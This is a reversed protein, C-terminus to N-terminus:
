DQKDVQVFDLEVPTERGFISVLIKLKMKEPRVEEVIGDFNTFPGEKIKVVEGKEFSVEVVPAEKVKEVVETSRFRMVEAESVPRPTKTSGVFDSIKPTDKVIHRTSDTLNMQVLIYGPYSTKEVMKKKGSPLVKEVTKKPVLIEGFHAEAGKQEIREILALKAKDEFGSFTNVVYWKLQNNNESDNM